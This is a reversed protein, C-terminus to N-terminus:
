KAHDCSSHSLGEANESNSQVSFHYNQLLNKKILYSASILKLKNCILHLKIVDM